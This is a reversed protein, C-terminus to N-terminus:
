NKIKSLEVQAKETGKKVRLDFVNDDMKQVVNLLTDAYAHYYNNTSRREKHRMLRQATLPDTLSSRRASPIDRRRASNLTSATTRRAMDEVTGM